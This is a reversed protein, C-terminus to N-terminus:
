GEASDVPAEPDVNPWRTMWARWTALHGAITKQRQAAVGPPPPWPGITCRYAITWDLQADWLAQEGKAAARGFFEGISKWTLGFAAILSGAGAIVSGSSDVFFLAVAGAILVAVLGLLVPMERITSLALERLRQSMGEVSGVYDSMRLIDTAAVEGVLIARWLRGQRHLRIPGGADDGPQAALEAEWLTLSNMVSHAANPPLKTTLDCLLRKIGPAQAPLTQSVSAGAAPACLAALERGLQLAELLAPDAAFLSPFLAHELSAVFTADGTAPPTTLPAKIDASDLGEKTLRTELRACLVTVQKILGSWRLDAPVEELLQDSPDIATQVWTQAESLCWGMAVMTVVDPDTAAQASWKVAAQAFASLADGASGPDNGKASGNGEAV